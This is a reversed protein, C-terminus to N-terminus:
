IDALLRDKWKSARELSDFWYEKLLPFVENHIVSRYWHENPKIAEPCFFSHGITFGSGLNIDDASIEDNLETMRNIILSALKESVGKVMLFDLFKNSNFQPKLNIFAFRRRLAYDVMSLSRDATNMLGMLYLNQPVYFQQESTESYTLPVSWESGRKDSEILMMLEGFIKSLNGRNIEDIIFVYPTEQDKKARKCFDYFLGNKLAFGEGTPRYGQIFDEYAYSQHFQVMGLRSPDKYGMLSYALRKAIYTKGVGPPGQLIINKKTQWSSLITRFKEESIFLEEMATAISYPQREDLPPADEEVQILGVLEKLSRVFDSYQSIETVTKLPLSGEFHWKGREEWRVARVHKYFSRGEDYIYDGTIKGYGVLIGRGKKAFVLDGPKMLHAFDFCARSDNTPKTEPEYIEIIREALSNTDPYQSLDGLDDWGIAIIGERYFEDWHEASRGPSILWIRHGLEVDKPMPVASNILEFLIKSEEETVQFNSGQQFKIISLNELGSIKLLDNKSIVNQLLGDIEVTVRLQPKSFKDLSLTYKREVESEEKVTPDILIKGYGVLGGDAGSKWFLVKDNKKIKDKHQKVLWDIQSLEVLANDIDYYAPNGQFIWTDAMVGDRKEASSILEQYVRLLVDLDKIIEHDSPVEGKPYFKYAITGNQYDKALAAESKLDVHDDLIFDAEELQSVKGRVKIANDRLLKRGETRGYKEVLETVGQNLTLYVGSMDACFLFVCYLGKQSTTTERQDFIGVWPVTTWNGQGARSYVNLEDRRSVAGCESLAKEMDKLVSWVSSKRGFVGKKAELYSSLLAEFSVKIGTDESDINTDGARINITTFGHKGLFDNTEQGGNFSRLHAGTALSVIKKPPYRKGEHEIAYIQSLKDEWNAWGDTSRFDKDFTKLASVINDRSTSPIM